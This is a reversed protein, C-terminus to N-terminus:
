VMDGPRDFRAIDAYREGVLKGANLPRGEHEVWAHARFDIVTRVGIVVTSSIDYRHLQWWLVLTRALCRGVKPSRMRARRIAVRHAHVIEDDSHHRTKSPSVWMLMRWTRQLGFLRLLVEVLAVLVINQAVMPRTVDLSSDGHTTAWFPVDIRM